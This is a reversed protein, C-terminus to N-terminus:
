NKLYEFIYKRYKLLNSKEIRFYTKIYCVIINVYDL